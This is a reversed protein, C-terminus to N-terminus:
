LVRFRWTKLSKEKRMMRRRSQNTGGVGGLPALMSLWKRPFPPPAEFCVRKKATTERGQLVWCNQPRPSKCGSVTRSCSYTMWCPSICVCWKHWLCWCCGTQKQHQLQHWLQWYSAHIHVINFGRGGGGGWGRSSDWNMANNSETEKSKTHLGLVWWKTESTLTLSCPNQVRSQHKKTPFFIKCIARQAQMWLTKRWRTCMLPYFLLYDAGSIARFFNEYFNRNSIRCIKSLSAVRIEM